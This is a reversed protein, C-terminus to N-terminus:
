GRQSSVFMNVIHKLSRWVVMWHLMTLKQEFTKFGSLTVKDTRGHTEARKLCTKTNTASKKKGRVPFPDTTLYPVEWVHAVNSVQGTWLKLIKPSKLFMKGSGQFLLVRSDRDSRIFDLSGWMREIQCIKQCEVELRRTALIQSCSALLQLPEVNYSAARTPRLPAPLWYCKETTPQAGLYPCQWTMAFIYLLSISFVPHSVLSTNASVFLLKPFLYGLLHSNKSSINKRCRSPKPSSKEEWTRWFWNSLSKWRSLSPCTSRSTSMFSSFNWGCGACGVVRKEQCGVNRTKKKLRFVGRIWLTRMRVTRLPPSRHNPPTALAMAVLPQLPATFCSTKPGDLIMTLGHEDLFGPNSGHNSIIQTLCPPDHLWQVHDSSKSWFHTACGMKRSSVM